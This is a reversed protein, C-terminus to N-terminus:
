KMTLSCEASGRVGNVTVAHYEYDISRPPNELARTDDHGSRLNDAECITGVNVRGIETAGDISWLTRQSFGSVPSVAWVGVAPVPPVPVPIMSVPGVLVVGTRPDIDLALTQGAPAMYSEPLPLFPIEMAGLGTTNVPTLLFKIQKVEWTQNLPVLATVRFTFLSIVNWDWTKLQVKRLIKNTGASETSLRGVIRVELAAIDKPQWQSFIPKTTM